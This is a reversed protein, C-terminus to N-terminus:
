QVGYAMDQTKCLMHITKDLDSCTWKQEAVPKSEAYHPNIQFLTENKFISQHGSLGRPAMELPLTDYHYQCIGCLEPRAQLLHELEWEYELLKILNEETGFEWTMDGAVFLGAYGAELARDLADGRKNIMLAADFTGDAALTRESTLLLHGAAIEKAVDLGLAALASRIGSVMPPSNLYLCQFNENLKQRMIAALAPLQRSPAGKYILCQNRPVAEM